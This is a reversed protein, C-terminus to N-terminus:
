PLLRFFGGVGLNFVELFHVFHNSFLKLEYGSEKLMSLLTFIIRTDQRRNASTLIFAIRVQSSGNREMGYFVLRPAKACGIIHLGTYEM